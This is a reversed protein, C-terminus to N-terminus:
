RCFNQLSNQCILLHWGTTGKSHIAGTGIQRIIERAGLRAISVAADLDLMGVEAERNECFGRIANQRERRLIYIERVASATLIKKGNTM